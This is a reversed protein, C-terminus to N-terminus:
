PTDPSWVNTGGSVQAFAYGGEFTVDVLSGDVDLVGVAGIPTTTTATWDVWAVQAAAVLWLGGMM